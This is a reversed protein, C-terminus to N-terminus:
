VDRADTSIVGNRMCKVEDSMESIVGNRMCKVEDSMEPM